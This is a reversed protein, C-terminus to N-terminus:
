ATLKLLSKHDDTTWQGKQMQRYVKIMTQKMKNEVLNLILLKVHSQM